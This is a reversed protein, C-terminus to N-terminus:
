GLVIVPPREVKADPHDQEHRRSIELRRTGDESTQALRDVLDSVDNRLFSLGLGFNNVQLSKADSGSNHPPEGSGRRAGEGPGFEPKTQELILRQVFFSETDQKGAASRIELGNGGVDQAAMQVALNPENKRIAGRRGAQGFGTFETESVATDLRFVQVAFGVIALRDREQFLMLNIQYTQRAVHAEEAAVKNMFIPFAHEVYM